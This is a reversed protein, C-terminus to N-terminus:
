EGLVQEVKTVNGRTDYTYTTLNGEADKVTKVNGSSDYTYYTSYDIGQDPAYLRARTLQESTDHYLRTEVGTPDTVITFQDTVAYTTSVTNEDVYYRFKTIRNEEGNAPVQTINYVRGESDYTFTMQSGDTQSISKVQNTTGHYTYWVSYDDTTVRNLRNSSDYVYDTTGGDASNTVSEIRDGQWNYQIYGGNVSTVRYLQNSANYTFTVKNGDRDIQEQILGGDGISDYTERVGSDGSNWTWVGGGWVLSAHAGAGDTARYSGTIINGDKDIGEYTSDYTFKVESGDAAVRIVTSGDTNVGGTRSMIRRDTSQRWDDGNDDLAGLSSTIVLNGTAANVSINEGGRGQTGNGLLGGTLQTASSRQFGAGLGTFVAVM